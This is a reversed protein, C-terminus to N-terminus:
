CIIHSGRVYSSPAGSAYASANRDQTNEAQFNVYSNYCFNDSESELQACLNQGLLLGAGLTGGRNM